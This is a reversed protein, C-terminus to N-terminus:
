LGVHPQVVCDDLVVTPLVLNLKEEEVPISQLLLDKLQFFMSHSDEFVHFVIPGDMAVVVVLLLLMTMM